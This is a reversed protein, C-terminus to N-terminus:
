SFLKKSISSVIPDVFSVVEFLEDDQDRRGELSIGVPLGAVGIGAPVTVVPQGSASGPGTNRIVTAFTPVERGFAQTTFDDGLPTASIPTTPRLFADIDNEEFLRDWEKQLSDRVFLMNEYTEHTNQQEYAVALLGKVDEAKAQEMVEEYKLPVPLSALYESLDRVVEFLVIAIGCQDDLEHLRETEVEVLEVDPNSNLKDIVSLWVLRVDEDLPMLFTSEPNPIGLRISTKRTAATGTNRVVFDVKRLYDFSEAIVGVTDRTKSLPVVGGDPWRGMSPRYGYVGCWAAPISVSGGTDTGLAFPVIGAGVAVGSGGSSGGPSRSPDYPNKSAPFLADSTTIGFALEHLNTKGVLQAGAELLRSVVPNDSTRISDALAPTNATTPLSVTDINDKVAFPVGSLPGTKSLTEQPREEVSVFAHLSDAIALRQSRAFPTEPDSKTM